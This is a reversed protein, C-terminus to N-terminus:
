SGICKMWQSFSPVDDDTLSTPWLPAGTKTVRYRLINRGAIRVVNRREGLQRRPIQPFHLSLSSINFRRNEQIKEEVARVLDENVLSPRGSQPDDHVNERRENFHRVWPM